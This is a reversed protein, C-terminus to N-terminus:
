KTSHVLYTSIDEDYLSKFKDSYEAKVNTDNLKKYWYILTNKKHTLFYDKYKEYINQKKLTDEMLEFVKYFDLKKLDSGNMTSTTSVKRYNYLKERIISIKNAKLHTELFFANDEFFLGEPFSINYNILFNRKYVKNWPTVCIRFLFKSTSSYNFTINDFEKSFLDLTMYPDNQFKIPEKDEFTNIDCMTIDSDNILANHYLKEFMTQEIYDDSDVFGIYEGKAEQIGRNRASSQGQNNQTLIKFRSDNEQYSKLIDLSNDTSGDNICIIEIDKLTQKKLSDLCLCLYKATNYVPLIISIKIKEKM